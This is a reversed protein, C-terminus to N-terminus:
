RGLAAALTAEDRQMGHITEHLSHRAPCSCGDPPQPHADLRVFDERVGCGDAALALLQALADRLDVRQVPDGVRDRAGRREVLQEPLRDVRQERRGAGVPGGHKQDVFVADHAEARPAPEGVGVSGGRVSM